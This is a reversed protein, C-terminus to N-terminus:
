LAVDLLKRALFIGGFAAFVGLVPSLGFYLAAYFYEAAELLKIAELCYSSFTTFGGLFGVMIGLRLEPTVAMREATLVYIAGVLFSGAVNVLFTGHPFPPFLVKEVFLGSYYRALVGLVGFGAIYLIQM